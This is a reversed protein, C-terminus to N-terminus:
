NSGNSALIDADKETREILNAQMTQMDAFVGSAPADTSLDSSLDNNAIASVVQRLETPDAGLQNKISRFAFFGYM